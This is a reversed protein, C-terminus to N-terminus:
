KLLLNEQIKELIMKTANGNEYSGLAAHHHRIKKISVEENYNLINKCLQENTTAFPFPWESIPTYFGREDKYEEIDPTFLFGPRFTFSFDWMSSSYDTIFIDTIYLLEQMDPYAAVNKCKDNNIDISKMAHHSRYLLIFKKNYRTTVADIVASINIGIDNINCDNQIDQRYKGRFTPAYLIISTSSDIGIKKKIMDKDLLSSFFLDNRPMGYPLFRTSSINKDRSMVETFMKCSSIFFDTRMGMTKGMFTAREQKYAGGGHWTNILIQKKRYPILAPFGVNSIIVKSTLLFFLNKISRFPVFLTHSDSVNKVNKGIWVYLLKDGCHSKL